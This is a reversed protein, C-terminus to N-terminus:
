VCTLLHPTTLMYLDLFPLTLSNQTKPGYPGRSWKLTLQQRSAFSFFFSLFSFFLFSFFFFFLFSSSFFFFFLNRVHAQWLIQLISVPIYDRSVFVNVSKFHQM